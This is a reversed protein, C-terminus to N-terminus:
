TKCKIKFGWAFRQTDELAVEGKGEFIKGQVAQGDPDRLAAERSALAICTVENSLQYTIISQIVWLILIPIWLEDFCLMDNFDLMFECIGFKLNGCWLMWHLQLIFSKSQLQLQLLTNKLKLYKMIM